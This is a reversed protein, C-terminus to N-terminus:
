WVCDASDMGKTNIAVVAEVESFIRVDFWLFQPFWFSGAIYIILQYQFAGVVVTFLYPSRLL